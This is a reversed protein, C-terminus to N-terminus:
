KEVFLASIGNRTSRTDGSILNTKVQCLLQTKRVSKVGDAGIETITTDGNIFDHSAKVVAFFLPCVVNSLTLINRCIKCSNSVPYFISLNDTTTVIM